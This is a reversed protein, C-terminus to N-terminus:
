KDETVRVLYPNNVQRRVEVRDGPKLDHHHKFLTCTTGSRRVRVRVKGEDNSVVTAKMAFRNQM